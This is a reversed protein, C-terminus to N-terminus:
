KITPMSIERSRVAGEVALMIFRSPSLSVFFARIGRDPISLFTLTSIGESEKVSM